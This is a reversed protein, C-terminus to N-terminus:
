IVGSWSYGSVDEWYGGKGGYVRDLSAVAEIRMVFKAHKYGLMREVRLRLPAGHQVPLPKGNMQWALITQPHMAETLDISEYYPTTGFSDACHFVLYRASPLLGAAALVTSLQPGQWQGIASWGEVCDHRTIQQRQPMAKLAALSLSLPRRVQGNVHLSWQSFGDAVQRLYAGDRVAVNGNARFSPSMDSLAFERALAQGGLMRQVPHHLEGLDGMLARFGPSANIRDCGSLALGGAGLLGNTILTRRNISNAM